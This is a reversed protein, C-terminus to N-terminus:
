FRKFASSLSKGGQFPPSNWVASSTRKFYRPKSKDFIEELKPSKVVGFLAQTNPPNYYQHMIAQSLQNGSAWAPITKRPQSEDDTSDDSNLDMGYDNLDIKPQKPGQPTMPYSNYIPSNEINMTANLQKNAVKAQAESTTKLLEEQKPQEQLKREKEEMEKRLREKEKAAQLVERQLRVAKEKEQQEHKRQAQIKEQEQKKELERKASLEKERALEAQHQEAIKRAREQEEERKKQMLEKHRREEEELQLARQKRADEEQKRRAELEELKKAMARKKIKGEAIKEERVKENKEEHHALKQELRKKKEEELQEVRERAQLVKQLREERKRKMEELRRKKEEEMKRKRQREAEEKKRLNELRQREKETLANKNSVVFGGKPTFRLPTNQRLFSKITSNRNVSVPTMLMQNKQVTHLFTKFPRVVKSAPCQPSLTKKRPPSHEDESPQGNDRDNIARKYSPKRRASLPQKQLEDSMESSDEERDGKHQKEKSQPSEPLVTKNSHLSKNLNEDVKQRHSMSDLTARSETSEKDPFEETIAETNVHMHVPSQQISEQKSVTRSSRRLVIQERKTSLSYRNALSARSSTSARGMLSRRVSRRSGKSVTPTQPCENLNLTAKPESLPKDEQQQPCLKETRPEENEITKSLSVNAIKLKCATRGVEKKLKEEPTDQIIIMSMESLTKSRKVPSPSLNHSISVKAIQPPTKEIQGEASRRENASIEVLPIRGKALDIVPNKVAAVSLSRFSRAAQARTVRVCPSTNELEAKQIDLEKKHQVNQSIRKSARIRAGNRKSSRRTALRDNKISSICKKRSRNKQSPTKPMLEPEGDFSSSKFMKIAEELIEDMWVSDRNHVNQIFEKLKKNAAEELAMPNLM